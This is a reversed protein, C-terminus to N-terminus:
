WLYIFSVIAFSGLLLPWYLMKLVMNNDATIYPIKVNNQVLFCAILLVLMILYLIFYLSELYVIQAQPIKSRFRIQAFITAFFISAIATLYKDIGPGSILLVLFLLVAIVAIPILDSVLADYLNRRLVIEFFSQAESSLDLEEYVGFDGVKYSGFNTTYPMKQYGFYSGIITWGPVFVDPDVGPLSRPNILQYSDLDPIFYFNENSTKSWYKIRVSKMDFPYLTYTLFQNLKAFVDYTILNDSRDKIATEQEITADNTQIFVFGAPLTDHLGRTFRQWFYASFKIESAEAFQLNNIYIGTPVLQKYPVVKLLREQMSMAEYQPDLQTAQAPFNNKLYEFLKVKSEIRYVNPEDRKYPYNYIAYWVWVIQIFIAVSMVASLIAWLITHKECVVAICWLLFIVSILFVLSPLMLAHRFVNTDQYFEEQDFVGVVSWPTSGIPSSILWSDAGTLENEYEFVVSEGKMIKKGAEGLEPNRLDNAIDFITKSKYKLQPYALFSGTETLIFWYGTNGLFLAEIIHQLHLLSQNAFAVGIVVKKGNVDTRHIPAGYQAMATNLEQSYYPQVFGAGKKLPETFWTYKPDTYDYLDELKVLTVTGDKEVMSRGFLKSNKDFAYPLFAVGVGTIEKPKSKRLLEDIQAQTFDTNSLQEAISTAIPKLIDVYNVLDKAANRTQEIAENKAQLSHSHSFRTYRFLLYGCLSASAISLVALLGAVIHNNKKIAIMSIREYLDQILLDYKWVM